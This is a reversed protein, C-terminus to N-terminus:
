FKVLILCAMRHMETHMQLVAVTELLFTFIMTHLVLVLLLDTTVQPLCCHAVMTTPLQSYNMSNRVYVTQINTCAALQTDGAYM